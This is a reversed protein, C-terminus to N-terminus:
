RNIKCEPPVQELRQLRDTEQDLVAVVEAKLKVGSKLSLHMLRELVSKEGFAGKEAEPIVGSISYHLM